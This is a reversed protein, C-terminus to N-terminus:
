CVMVNTSSSISNCMFYCLPAVQALFLPLVLDRFIDPDRMGYLFISTMSVAMITLDLPGNMFYTWEFKTIKSVGGEGQENKM